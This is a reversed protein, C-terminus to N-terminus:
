TADFAIVQCDRWYTFARLADAESLRIGRM